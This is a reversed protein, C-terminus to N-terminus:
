GFVTPKLGVQNKVRETGTTMLASDSISDVSLQLEGPEVWLKIFLGVDGAQGNGDQPGLRSIRGEASPRIVAVSRM